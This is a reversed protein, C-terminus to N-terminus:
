DEQGGSDPLGETFKRSMGSIMCPMYKWVPIKRSTQTSEEGPDCPRGRYAGAKRCPELGILRRLVDVPDDADSFTRPICVEQDVQAHQM